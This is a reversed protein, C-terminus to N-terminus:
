LSGRIKALIEAHSGLNLKLFNRVGYAEAYKLMNGSLISIKIERSLGQECAYRLADLSTIIALDYHERLLAKQHQDLLTRTAAYVGLRSVQAGRALLGEMIEERGLSASVVTFHQGKVEQLEPLDLFVASGGASKPYIVEDAQAQLLDASGPGMAFIKKGKLAMSQRLFGRVANKSVFILNQSLPPSAWELFQIQILPLHVVQHGADILANALESAEPEPRTVLIKM